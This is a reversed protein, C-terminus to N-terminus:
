LWLKTGNSHQRANLLNFISRFLKAFSLERYSTFFFHLLRHFTTEVFKIQSEICISLPVSSSLTLLSGHKECSYDVSIAFRPYKSACNGDRLCEFKVLPSSMQLLLIVPYWLALLINSATSKAM